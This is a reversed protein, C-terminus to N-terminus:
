ECGEGVFSQTSSQAKRQVNDAPNYFFDSRCLQEAAVYLDQEPIRREIPKVGRDRMAQSVEEVDKLVRLLNLGALKELEASTWPEYGHGDEALLDFLNPYKSVDDLGKPTRAIGDFDGGIGIYDPGILQKIHNIHELISFFNIVLLHM